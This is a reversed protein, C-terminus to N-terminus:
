RRGRRRSRVGPQSPPLRLRLVTTGPSTELEVIGDHDAAARQVIALGLGTGGPKTSYFPDFIPAEPDLLGPGNDEVEVMVHDDRLAARLTTVGGPAGGAAEIANQLLNMLALEIRGADIDIVMEEDPLESRVVVGSRAALPAVRGLAHECVARLPTERIDLPLPRAFDLFDSLLQSLRRLEGQLVRISGVIEEDDIGARKMSRELLTAHLHAGNLPNRLEHALGAVLNGTALLKERQVRRERKTSDIV